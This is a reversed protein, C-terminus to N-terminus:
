LYNLLNQEQLKSAAQLSAQYALYAAQYDIVIDSLEEDENKSKLEDVTMYQSTVRNKTLDLRSGMTGLKTTTLDVQTIYGQFTGIYKSYVDQMKADAYAAEKEASALLSSLKAQSEEDAYADQSLMSTLRDVKDHADIAAEVIDALEDIDRCVDATLFENAEINITFEQNAAITYNINQSVWNGDSDYRTYSYGTTNNTCNFYNEPKIEGSGFGTKDYSIAMEYKGSKVTDAITNGFILEGTDTNLYVTDDDIAYDMDELEASTITTLAISGTNGDGDTYSISMDTGATLSDYSLRLRYLNATGPEATPTQATLNAIEDDTVENYVYTCEEMDTYSLREEITYSETSDSLFTLTSNTKYGTFVTRGAYESNAESYIQEKIQQLNTLIANRDSATLTGTAGKDCQTHVDNLLSRINTLATETVELWSEAESINTNLYQDLENLNSRLRLARVAIVPDESPKDIKKQSSMQNNLTNVNVKNTNINSKTNGLIINNTIRM